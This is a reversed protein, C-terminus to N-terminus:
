GGGIDVLESRFVKGMALGRQGEAPHWGGMIQVDVRVFVVCVDRESARVM